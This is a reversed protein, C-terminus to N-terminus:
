PSAELRQISVLILRMDRLRSLLGHLAAQDAVTGELLTEGGEHSLQLGDFHDAWSAHLESEVRIRYAAPGDVPVETASM